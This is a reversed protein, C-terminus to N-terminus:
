LSIDPFAWPGVSGPHMDCHVFSLFILFWTESFVVCRVVRCPAQQTVGRGAPLKSFLPKDAPSTETRRVRLAIAICAHLHLRRWGHIWKVPCLELSAVCM